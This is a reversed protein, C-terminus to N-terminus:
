EWLTIAGFNISTELCWSLLKEHPTPSKVNDIIQISMSVIKGPMQVVCLSTLLSSACLGLKKDSIKDIAVCIAERCMWIQVKKKIEEHAQTICLFFEMIAKMLNFNSEQFGKTYHKVVVVLPIASFESIELKSTLKQLSSGIAEIALKKTQWKTASNQFILM